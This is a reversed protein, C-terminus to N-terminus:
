NWYNCVVGFVARCTFVFAERLMCILAFCIDFGAAGFGSVSYQQWHLFTKRCEFFRQVFVFVGAFTVWRRQYPRFLVGSQPIFQYKFHWKMGPEMELGVLVSLDCSIMFCLLLFGFIVAGPFRAGTACVLMMFIECFLLLSFNGATCLGCILSLSGEIGSRAAWPCTVNGLFAVRCLSSLYSGARCCVTFALLIDCLVSQQLLM